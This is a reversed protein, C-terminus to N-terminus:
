EPTKTLTKLHERYDAIPMTGKEGRHPGVIFVRSADLGAGLYADIDTVANGYAATVTLGQDVLGRLVQEKYDRTRRSSLAGAVSSQLQLPGAPLDEADLWARTLTALRDPRATVYVPLAGAAARARVVDAAGARIEQRYREKVAAAALERTLEADKVTLTGDIDFIVVSRGPALVWLTAETASGDGRVVARFRHRGQPLADAEPITFIMWGDLNRIGRARDRREGKGTRGAGLRRWAEAGGPHVFVEVDEDELDKDWPGYAFKCAIGQPGGTVSLSDRCRHQPVGQPTTFVPTRKHRWPARAGAPGDDAHAPLSLLLLALALHQHKM